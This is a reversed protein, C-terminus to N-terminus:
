FQAPFPKSAMASPCLALLSLVASSIPKGKM